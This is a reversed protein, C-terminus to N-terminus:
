FPFFPCLTFPYLPSYFVNILSTFTRLPILLRTSVPQDSPSPPPPPPPDPPLPRLAFISFNNYDLPLFFPFSSLFAPSLPPLPLSPTILVDFPYFFSHPPSLRM